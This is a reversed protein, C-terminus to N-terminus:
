DEKRVVKIWWRINVLATLLWAGLGMWVLATSDNTAGVGLLILGVLILGIRLYFMQRKSM